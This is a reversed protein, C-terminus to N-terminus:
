TTPVESSRKKKRHPELAKVFDAALEAVQWRRLETVEGVEEVSAPNKRAVAELRDRSCLVGPDLALRKAAADRATKLASVRADFDPDRDWRAARPFKPLEADPVALARRVADLLDAGRQELIARPMGKIKGLSEKSQPQSRAIELLQENGLVRFTARDLVGAVADRWPVLERLVARERRSLDRAGKLRLYSTGPEEDTWRTGELLAFEERAWATRGMRELESAMHDKLQLLWRTDQAAYDLMDGTLPRMSWDARQHKKDLKVDFFRELLAALGFATYGLLQAAIRTDFITRIHWGYDQQLLRLDYDADHFVVEVAPDELLAGLGAPVGIPLPDIVAHRTRTSLQLLYVRDVFRHFSAGETDLAIERTTAIESTFKEIEAVTDLYEFSAVNAREAV